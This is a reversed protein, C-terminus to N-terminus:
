WWPHPMSHLLVRAFRRMIAMCRCCQRAKSRDAAGADTQRDGLLIHSFHSWKSGWFFRPSHTCLSVASAAKRLHQRFLGHRTTGCASHCSMAVRQSVTRSVDSKSRAMKGNLTTAVASANSFSVSIPLCRSACRSFESRQGMAADWRPRPGSVSNEARQARVTM